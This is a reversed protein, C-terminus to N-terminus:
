KCSRTEKEKGKDGPVGPLMDGGSCTGGVSCTGDRFHDITVNNLENGTDVCEKNNQCNCYILANAQAYTCSTGAVEPKTCDADHCGVKDNTTAAAKNPCSSQAIAVLAVSATIGLALLILSAWHPRRNLLYQTKMPHDKM